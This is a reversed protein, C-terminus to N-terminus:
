IRHGYDERFEEILGLIELGKKVRGRLSFGHILIDFTDFNPLGMALKTSTLRYWATSPQISTVFQPLRPPPRQPLLSTQFTQVQVLRATTTRHLVLLTKAPTFLNGPKLRLLV